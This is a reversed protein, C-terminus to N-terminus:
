RSASNLVNDLRFSYGVGIIYNPSNSNLGFAM